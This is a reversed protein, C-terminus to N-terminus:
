LEDIVAGATKSPKSERSIAEGATAAAQQLRPGMIAEMGKYFSRM